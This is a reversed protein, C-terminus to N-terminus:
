DFSKFLLAAVLAMGAIGALVRPYGIRAYFMGVGAMACSQMIANFFLTMASASSREGDPVKSM